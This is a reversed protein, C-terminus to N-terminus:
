GEEESHDIKMTSIEDCHVFSRPCVTTNLPLSYTFFLNFSCQTEKSLLWIDTCHFDTSFSVNPGKKLAFSNKAGASENVRIMFMFFEESINPHPPPPPHNLRRTKMSIQQRDLCIGYVSWLVEKVSYVRACIKSNGGLIIVMSWINFKFFSSFYWYEKIDYLNSM